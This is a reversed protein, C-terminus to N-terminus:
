NAVLVPSITPATPTNKITVTFASSKVVGSDDSASILTNAPLLYKATAVYYHAGVGVETLLYTEGTSVKTLSTIINDNVLPKFWEIKTLDPIVAPPATESGYSIAATLTSRDDADVNKCYANTGTITVTFAPLVYITIDQAFDPDSWCGDVVDQVSVRVKYEGPATFPHTFVSTTQSTIVSASNSPDVVTWKYGALNTTAANITVTKNLYAYYTTAAYSFHALLTFLILLAVKRFITITTKM